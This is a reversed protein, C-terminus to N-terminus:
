KKLAAKRRNFEDLSVFEIDPREERNMQEKYFRRIAQEIPERPMQNNLDIGSEFREPLKKKALLSKLTEDEM